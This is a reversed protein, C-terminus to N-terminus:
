VWSSLSRQVDITFQNNEFNKPLELVFPRLYEISKEFEVIESYSIIQLEMFSDCAKKLSAIIEKYRMYPTEGIIQNHRNLLAQKFFQAVRIQWKAHEDSPSCYVKNSLYDFGKDAQTLFNKTCIVALRELENAFSCNPPYAKLAKEAIDLCVRPTFVLDEIFNHLDKKEKRNLIKKYGYGTPLPCTELYRESRSKSSITSDAQNPM